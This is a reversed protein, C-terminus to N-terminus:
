NSLCAKRVNRLIDDERALRAEESRRAFIFIVVGLLINSYLIFLLIDVISTTVQYSSWSVWSFDSFM